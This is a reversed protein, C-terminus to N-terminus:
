RRGAFRIYTLTRVNYACVRWYAGPLKQSGSVKLLPTIPCSLHQNYIDLHKYAHIQLPRPSMSYKYFDHGSCCFHFHFHTKRLILLCPSTDPFPSAQWWVLDKLGLIKDARFECGFPASFQVTLIWTSICGLARFVISFFWFAFIM